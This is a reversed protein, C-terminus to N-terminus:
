NAYLRLWAEMSAGAVLEMCEDTEGRWYREWAQRWSESQVWGRQVLLSESLMEIIRAKEKERLGESVMPSADPSDMRLRVAKPVIGTMTERLIWKDLGRRILMSTPVRLMFDVLRRDFYPHRVEVQTFAATVDTTARWICEWGSMM